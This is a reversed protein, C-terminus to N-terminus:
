ENFLYKELIDFPAPGIRLINEHFDKLNFNNGHIEVAKDKLREFELYGVYYKLYNGPDSVILTLIDDLADNDISVYKSWFDKLDAKTWGYYNIGIDSSAYLSLTAIQNNELLDAVSDDLGAYHYSMLEVYTAWGETYGGYDLTSRFPKLGYEYSKTTQYLHGPISEHALTTFFHIDDYKSASNIYVTNDSYNDIPATIYFAPAISDSLSPTVYNVECKINALPPFDESISEILSDLMEDDSASCAININNCTNILDPQDTIIAKCKALATERSDTIRKDIDEISDSCGTLSYVLLKYYKRGDPLQCTGYCKKSEITAKRNTLYSSLAKSLKSYAPIVHEDIISRNEQIYTKMQEDNLNLTGDSIGEILKNDFSDVLFGSSANAVYEDCQKIIKKCVFDPMFLGSAVKDNEFEIVSDFYKDIQKLLTLYDEVDAENRFSYEAFLMPLESQLGNSPSLPEYYLDYKLLSLSSNLWDKLIDYDIQNSSSLGSYDFEKLSNIRSNLESKLESRTKKSMDGLNPNREDINYLSPQCVMYHCNLGDKEMDEVFLEELFNDFDQVNETSPYYRPCTCGTLLTLAIFSAVLKNHKFFHM